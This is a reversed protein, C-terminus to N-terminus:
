PAEARDDSPSLAAVVRSPSARGLHGAMWRSTAVLRHLNIGPDLGLGRLMWVLDETALNGTASRAYPCGGIGGASSDFETIGLTLASEVNALAQGYTDHFHMAIQEAPVGADFLATLLTRVHGATGTGITDGLSLSTCGMALLRLAVDVVQTIPVDGEWPDGFCMSVYGRVTSGAERAEAVTETFMELAGEVTTNLNRQAFTETASAFVAVDRADADFARALGKRNPVLVPYTVAPERRINGM